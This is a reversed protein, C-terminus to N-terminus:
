PSIFKDYYIRSKPMGSKTLVQICADILGPSGCLFAEYGSCDPLFRSVVDTILGRKGQWDSDKPENSLAPIFSFDPLEKELAKLENVLFLDRKTLAGFFYHIPRRVSKERIDQLMSWLPGMGSGGAIFIAPATTDSLHFDGYPATFYVKDGEKLVDFIWGTCIGAEVRRIMLEIHRRDSPRSTLSFPRIVAQNGAYPLSRLQLYQGATFDITEPKILEIRLHVIDHTLMRKAILLGVYQKISFIYEPAEIFLDQNVTVQCSLRYFATIEQNSLLAREQAGIEDKSNLVKIKCAGCRANGGCASPMFIGNRVLGSLLSVGHHVMIKRQGNNIDITWQKIPVAEL